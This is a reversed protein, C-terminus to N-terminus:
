TEDRAVKAAGEVTQVIAREAAHRELAECRQCKVVKAKNAFAPWVGEPKCRCPYIRLAAALQDAITTDATVEDELDGVGGAGVGCGGAGRVEVLRRPQVLRRRGDVQAETDQPAHM